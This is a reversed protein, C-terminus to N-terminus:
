GRLHKLFLPLRVEPLGPVELIVLLHEPTNPYQRALISHLAPGTYLVTQLPDGTAARTSYIGCQRSPRAVAFQLRTHFMDHRCLLICCLTPERPASHSGPAHFLQPQPRLPLWSAGLQWIWLAM